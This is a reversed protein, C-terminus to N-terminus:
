STRKTILERASLIDDFENDCSKCAYYRDVGDYYVSRCIMNQYEFTTRTGTKFVPHVKCSGEKFTRLKTTVTVGDEFMVDIDENSRYDVIKASLGYATNIIRGIQAKRNLYLRVNDINPHAVYGAKFSSLRFSVESGDEYKGKCNDNGNYEILTLNLGNSMIRTKGVWERRAQELNRDHYTFNPNLISGKKFESYACETVVTGDEFEVTMNKTGSWGVITMRQGAVSTSIEGIHKQGYAVRADGFNPNKIQGRSFASADKHEVVTGDEFEIDIDRKSRYLICTMIQGNLAKVQRGLLVSQAM